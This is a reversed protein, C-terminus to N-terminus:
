FTFRGGIQIARPGGSLFTQNARQTPQGFSFSQSAPNAAVTNLTFSYGTLNAINFVNFFEGFVYLHYREKYSFSKTVRVDTDFTSDGLQYNAPLILKSLTAGYPSKTGAYNTNWAAIATALQAQGCGENYCGYPNGPLPGSGGLTGSLDAGSVIPQLPNRSVFSNNVSLDFGWPLNVIGSVNLNHRALTPGYGQFYNNLNVVAVSNLNQLAYSATFQYHNSFQKRLKVLLGEYVSRGQDVYTSLAGTSCEQGAVFLQSTKCKPIVPGGVANYHNLDLTGLQVNEFQRRAWDATLILNHGLDRQVGLSTQYSRMLPYSAPYLGTAAKLIDLSTLTYPGSTQVPTPSVKASIAGYQQNYIQMMQGLTMTTLTQIPLPAGVPLPVATGSTFQYINPFINTFSGAAINNYGNGIPGIVGAEAARQFFPLFDWYMGGGGRIVTRGSKDINWAFGFSPAFNLKNPQTAGLNNAGFIPALYAPKPMDSNFLGAQYEYALGYNVTLHPRIKWVDQAYFRPSIERKNADFHYPGPVTGPGVEFGGYLAEPVNYVPLNLFDATSAIKANLLNPFYQAVNAAGGALSAAFEPPVVDLCGIICHLTNTTTYLYDLSAGFAFRHTGKQWSLTQVLDLDRIWRDQPTTNNNGVALSSSFVATSPLGAGICPSQCQAATATPNNSRWYNYALRVDNVVSPTVVTTVGVAAQDSWNFLNGWNSPETPVGGAPGFFNNGDHTYRAFMTNKSSLRYDFRVNETKYTAPSSFTGTLPAFSALDPQVTLAQVQSQREYNFFFFLKDRIIPGSVYFGPDRRAFYPNPSLPNRKLSPYAAMNNDRYYFFGSGHFDNGGSRTVINIAGVGTIGTSVDFNVLSTQFEQVSEQSLNLRTGSGSNTERISFGDVTVLTGTGGGLMSVTVPSNRTSTSGAVISVGPELSALQLFNRGNLPLEQINQREISGAVTHSDYNIQATAAEVTVAQTSGAVGVAMNVTTDSGALVQADRVLPLFGQAEARVEYDGALLAPASYLGQGNATLSRAAGTAKNTVTVSAGPIVAGSADTVTGLIVGTATQAQARMGGLVILVTFSVRFFNSMTKGSM